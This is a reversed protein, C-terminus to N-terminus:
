PKGGGGGDTKKSEEYKKRSEERLQKLVFDSAAKSKFTRVVMAGVYKQSELAAQLNAPFSVIDSWEGKRNLGSQAFAMVRYGESTVIGNQELKQGGPFHMVGPQLGLSYSAGDLNKWFQCRKDDAKWEGFSRFSKSFFAHRIKGNLEVWLFEHTITRPEKIGVSGTGWLAQDILKGDQYCQLYVFYYDEGPPLTYQGKLAHVQLLQRLHPDTKFFEDAATVQKRSEMLNRKLDCGGLTMLLLFLIMGTACKNM